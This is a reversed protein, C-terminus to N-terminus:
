FKMKLTASTIIDQKKVNVPVLSHYEYTFNLDLSMHSSLKTSLSTTSNVAWDGTFDYFSPTYFTTHKLSVYDNLKHRM